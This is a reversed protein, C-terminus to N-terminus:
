KRTAEWDDRNIRYVACNDEGFKRREVFRFGLREYFRIAGANTELPDVLVAEVTTNRFCRELALQMMETGYGKSLDNEEGIWIDIARLGDPM